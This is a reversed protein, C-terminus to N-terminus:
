RSWRRIFLLTPTTKVVGVKSEKIPVIYAGVRDIYNANEKTGFIEHIVCM